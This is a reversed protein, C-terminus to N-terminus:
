VGQDKLQLIFVTGVPGVWGFLTDVKLHSLFHNPRLFLDTGNTAFSCVLVTYMQSYLKWVLILSDTQYTSTLM